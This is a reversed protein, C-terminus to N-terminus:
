RVLAAAERLVQLQAAIMAENPDHGARPVVLGPGPVKAEYKRDIRRAIGFARPNTWPPAGLADLKDIADKDGAARALGLLKDYM